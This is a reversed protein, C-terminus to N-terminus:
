SSIHNFFFCFFVHAYHGHDINPAIQRVSMGYSSVPRFARKRPYKYNYMELIRFQISLYAGSVDTDITLYPAVYGSM